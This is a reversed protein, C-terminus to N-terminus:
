RYEIHYITTWFRRVGPDYLKVDSVVDYYPIGFEKAVSFIKMRVRETDAKSTIGHMIAENIEDMADLYTRKM